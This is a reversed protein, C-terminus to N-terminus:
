QDLLVTARIPFHDSLETEEDCLRPSVLPLTSFIQDNVDGPNINAAFPPFTNLSPQDPVYSYLKRPHALETFRRLMSEHLAAHRIPDVNCDGVVVWPQDGFGVIMEYLQDLEHARFNPLSWPNVMEVEDAILHVNIVHVRVTTGDTRLFELENHECTMLKIFMEVLSQSKHEFVKCHSSVVRIGKRVFTVEGPTTAHWPIYRFRPSWIYDDSLHKSLAHRWFCRLFPWGFVEQCTVVDASRILRPILTPGCRRHQQLPATTPRMGYPWLCCNLSVLDFSDRPVLPHQQAPPFMRQRSRRWWSLLQVVALTGLATATAWAGYWVCLVCGSVALGVAAVWMLM